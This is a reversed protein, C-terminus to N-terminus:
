MSDVSIPNDYYLKFFILLIKIARKKQLLVSNTKLVFADIFRIPNDASIGPELSKKTMQNHHIGTMHQINLFVSNGTKICINKYIKFYYLPPKEWLSVNAVRLSSIGNKILYYYKDVM